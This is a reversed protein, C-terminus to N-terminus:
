SHHVLPVGQLSKCQRVHQMMLGAQTSTLRHCQVHVFSKAPMLQLDAHTSTSCLLDADYAETTGDAPSLTPAEGGAELPPTTTHTSKERRIRVREQSVANTWWPEALQIAASGIASGSAASRRHESAITHVHSHLQRQVPM